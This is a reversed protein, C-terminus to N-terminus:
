FRMSKSEPKITLDYPGDKTGLEDKFTIQDGDLEYTGHRQYVGSHVFVKQTFKGDSTFVLTGGCKGSGGQGKVFCQHNMQMGNDEDFIATYEWGQPDQLLKTQDESLDAGSVRFSVCLSCLFAISSLRM